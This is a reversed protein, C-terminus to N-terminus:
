REDVSVTVSLGPRLLQKLEKADDFAIRVPVRQVIKTFNGTANEIPILSFSAGTAPSLSEIHGHFVEGKLIDARIEAK